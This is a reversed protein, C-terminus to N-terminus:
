MWTEFNSINLTYKGLRHVVGNGDRRTFSWSCFCFNSVLKKIDNFIHGFSGLSSSHNSLFYYVIKLDWCILM